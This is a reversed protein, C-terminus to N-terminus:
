IDQEVCSAPHAEDHTCIHWKATSIEANDLGINIGASVKSLFPKIATIFTDKDKEADFFLDLRVRYKM